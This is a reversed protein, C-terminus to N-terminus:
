NTEQLNILELALCKGAREDIEAVLGNVMYPAQGDTIKMRHEPDIFNHVCPELGKGLISDRAGCM